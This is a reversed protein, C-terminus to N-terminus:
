STDFYQEETQWKLAYSISTDVPVFFM